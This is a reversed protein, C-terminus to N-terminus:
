ENITIMGSIDSLDAEENYKGVQLNVTQSGSYNVGDYEQGVTWTTDMCVVGGEESPVYIGRDFINLFPGSSGNLSVKLSVQTQIIDTDVKWKVPVRDGITFSEGGTPTILEVAKGSSITSCDDEETPGNCSIFLLLSAIVFLIRVM